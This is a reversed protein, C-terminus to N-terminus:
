DQLVIPSENEKLDFSDKGAYMREMLSNVKIYLAKYIAGKEVDVVLLDHVNELFTYYEMDIKAKLIIKSIMEADIKNVFAQIVARGAMSNYSVYKNTIRYNGLIGVEQLTLTLIGLTDFFDVGVRANGEQYNLTSVYKNNSRPLQSSYAPAKYAPIVVKPKCIEEISALFAKDLNNEVVEKKIKPEFYIVEEEEILEEIEYAVGNVGKYTVLKTMESKSEQAIRVNLEGKNNVIMSLYSVYNKANEKLDDQDTGSFYVQMSNHSHISGWYVGEEMLEPKNHLLKAYSEDFQHSTFTSSGKDMPHLYIPTYCCEGTDEDIIEAKYFLMGCWEVTSIVTCLHEYLAIFEKTLNLEHFEGGSVLAVQSKSVIAKKEKANNKIMTM